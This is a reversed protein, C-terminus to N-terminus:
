WTKNGHQWTYFITSFHSYYNLIVHRFNCLTALYLLNALYPMRLFYFTRRAGLIMILNCSNSDDTPSYISDYQIANEKQLIHKASWRSHHSSPYILSLNKYACQSFFSILISSYIASTATIIFLLWRVSIRISPTPTCFSPLLMLRCATMSSRVGFNYALFYNLLLDTFYCVFIFYPLLGYM